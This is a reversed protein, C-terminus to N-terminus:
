SRKKMIMEVGGGGDEKNETETESNAKEQTKNLVHTTSM